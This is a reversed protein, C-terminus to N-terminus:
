IMDKLSCKQAKKVTECINRLTDGNYGGMLQQKSQDVNCYIYVVKEQSSEDQM